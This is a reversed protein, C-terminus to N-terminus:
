QTMGQILLDALSYFQSRSVSLDTGSSHTKHAFVIDLKPVVMIFQGGAGHAAYSGFCPSDEPVERLWWLYSYGFGGARSSAPNMEASPTWPHLMREMWWEPIIQEGKWNGNRLMLYGLRAMDRTSLYFYYARHMSLAMNGGWRQAKLSFDEMQLVRAFDTELAEYPTKGTGLTFITGLANFDWNNYLHYTGPVQSGRPPAADWNDGTNSRPHYIGSRARLLDHVTAQKEIPLLGLNDDVGLEELTAGLDIANADVYKGYLMALISKRVSASYSVFSLDGYDFLIRGDKIAVFATTDMNQLMQLCAAITQPSVGVTEPNEIREWTEGPYVAPPPAEEAHVRFFGRATAPNEPWEAWRYGPRDGLTVRLGARNGGHAVPNWSILNESFDLAYIADGALRERWRVVPTGTDRWVAIPQDAADLPDAGFFFEARNDRGDGDPDARPLAADGSLGHAAAWGDFTGVEPAGTHVVTDNILEWGDPLVISRFYPLRPEGDLFEFLQFAAGAGPAEVFQVYLRAGSFDTGEDVRIRPAHEGIIMHITAEGSFSVRRLRMGDGSPALSGPVRANEISGTGTVSGFVRLPADPEGRLESGDLHLPQLITGSGHIRSNPALVLVTDPEGRVLSGTSSLFLTQDAPITLLGQVLGAATLDGNTWDFEAEANLLLPGSVTLSGGALRVTSGPGIDLQNGVTVSAQSEIAFTGGHRIVADGGVVLNAGNRVTVAATGGSPNRASDAAIHLHSEIALLSDPDAIEAIGEADPGFGVRVSNAAFAQSQQDIQLVGKGGHGIFVRGPGLATRGTGAGFRALGGARVQVIGIAGPEDGLRLDGDELLWFSDPGDVMVRGIAGASGGVVTFGSHLEGGELLRLQGNSGGNSGVTLPDGELIWATGTEDRNHNLTVPSFSAFPADASVQVRDIEVFNKGDGHFDGLVYMRASPGSRSSSTAGTFYIQWPGAGIRYQVQYSNFQPNYGLVLRVPETQVLPFVASAGGTQAGPGDARAQLTVTGNGPAVLRMEATMASPTDAAPGNMFSFRIQPNQGTARSLNWGALDVILYVTGNGAGWGVDFRSNQGGGNRQLRFVGDGTTSSDALPQSWFTLPQAENRTHILEEGAPDDFRWDHFVQSQAVTVAVTGFLTCLAPLLRRKLAERNPPIPNFGGSNGSQASCSPIKLRM